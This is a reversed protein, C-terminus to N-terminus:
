ATGKQSRMRGTCQGATSRTARCVLGCVITGGGATCRACGNVEAGVLGSCAHAQGRGTGRRILCAPAGAELLPVGCERARARVRLAGRIGCRGPGVRFPRRQGNVQQLARRGDLNYFLANEIDAGGPLGGGLSARLIWCRAASLSALRGQLERGRRARHIINTLRDLRVRLSPSASRADRDSRPPPHRQARDLAV